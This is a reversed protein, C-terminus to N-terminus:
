YAEYNDNDYNLSKEYSDLLRTKSDLEKELKETSERMSFFVWIVGFFVGASFSVLITTLPEIINTYEM